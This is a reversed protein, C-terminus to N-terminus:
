EEARYRDLEVGALELEGRIRLRGELGVGPRTIEVLEVLDDGLNDRGGFGPDNSGGLQREPHVLQLVPRRQGVIERSLFLLVHRAHQMGRAAVFHLGGLDEADIGHLQGSARTM